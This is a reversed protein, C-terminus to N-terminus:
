SLTGTFLFKFMTLHCFLAIANDYSSSRAAAGPHDKVDYRRTELLLHKTLLWM